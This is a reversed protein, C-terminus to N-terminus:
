AILLGSAGANRAQELSISGRDAMLIVPTPRELAAVIAACRRLLKTVDFRGSKKWLDFGPAVFVAEPRLGAFAPVSEPLAVAVSVKFGQEAYRRLTEGEQRIGLNVSDLTGSFDAGYQCTSPWNVIREYGRARLATMLGTGGIFPDAAFIAFMPSQAGNRDPMGALLQALEANHDRNPALGSLLASLGECHRAPWLLHSSQLTAPRQRPDADVLTWRSPIQTHAAM